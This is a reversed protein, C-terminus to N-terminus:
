DDSDDILGAHRLDDAVARSVAADFPHGLNPAVYWRRYGDDFNAEILTAGHRKAIQRMRRANTRSPRVTSVGFLFNSMIQSRTHPHPHCVGRAGRPPPPAAACGAVPGPHAPARQSDRDRAIILDNDSWHVTLGLGEPILREVEALKREREGKDEPDDFETDYVVWRENDLDLAVDYIEDLAAVLQDTIERMRRRRVWTMSDDDADEYSVTAYGQEGTDPRQAWTDAVRYAGCNACVRRTVVGGGHGHVGPNEVLGGVISHPSRWDHEEDRVCDPEDPDVQVEVNGEADDIREGTAPDIPWYLVTWWVTRAPDDRDWARVDSDILSEIESPEVGEITWKGGDDSRCEWDRPEDSALWAQLEAARAASAADRRERALDLANRLACDGGDGGCVNCACDDYAASIQDALWEAYDAAEALSLDEGRRVREALPPLFELGVQLTAHEADILARLSPSPSPSTTM